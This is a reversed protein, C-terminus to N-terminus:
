TDAGIAVMYTHLASYLAAAETDDLYAGLHGAAVQHSVFTGNAKVGFRMNGSLIASSSASTPATVQVGDRLVSINSSDSRRGMAHIPQTGGSPGNVQTSSNVNARTSTGTGGAVRLRDSANNISFPENGNGGGTRQYVGILGNNQTFQVADTSPAFGTDGNGSVGDGAFGRDTTFTWSNVVTITFSGPSKWNLRGAQEHHAALVWMVDIKSWVGAAKLAAILTNILVKRASDPQSSMAAFLAVSEAEMKTLTAAQGTLLFSGFEGVVKRSARLGAAQGGIAYSGQDGAVRRSARLTAAQGALAYAGQAATLLRSVVLGANQGAMAYSGADATFSFVKALGAAQGTVGYLGTEALLRRAVRLGATQGTLTYSGQAGTLLRSALLGADQGTVAYAGADATLRRSVLLSVDSGTLTYAGADARVLRSVLLAADQGTLTLTGTGAALLRSAILRAEQGTLVFTGAEATLTPISAAVLTTPMTLTLLVRHVYAVTADLATKTVRVAAGARATTYRRDHVVSRRMERTAALTVTPM